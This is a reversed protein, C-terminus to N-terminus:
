NLNNTYTKALDVNAYKAGLVRRVAEASERSIKGDVSYMPKAMKIAEIEATQDGVRFEAPMKALIEEPYHERIWTLSKLTARAIKRAADPNKSLWEERALLCSAPYDEVGFIARLGEPTRTDALIKVDPKRQQLATIASGFLIAADVQGHEVASAATAGMGVSTVSVSDIPM